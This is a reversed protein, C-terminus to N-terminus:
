KQNASEEEASAQRAKDNLMQKEILQKSYSTLYKNIKFKYSIPIEEKDFEILVVCIDQRNPLFVANKIVGTLSIKESSDSFMLGLTAKKNILFKPVGVFLLKAGIFSIEKLICKRPVNEVFIYSEEKPLGLERISDKTLPIGEDCKKEFNDNVQLFEGLREILDDPPRQTFVLKVMALDTSNQFSSIEQVTSSVFFQIPNNDNDMFCYKLSVPCNDKKNFEVYAGSGTGILITAMQMSTSNIICPWQGGNCKVYIMRPNIRLARLNSKNLVIDKDRFFDYYNSIHHSNLIGM